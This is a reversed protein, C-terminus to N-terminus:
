SHITAKSLDQFLPSVSNVVAVMDTSSRNPRISVLSSPKSLRSSSKASRNAVLASRALRSVRRILHITPKITPEIAAAEEMATSTSLSVPYFSM